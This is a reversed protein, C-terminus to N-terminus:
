NPRQDGELSTSDKNKHSESEVGPNSFKKFEELLHGTIYLRLKLQLIFQVPTLYVTVFNCLTWILCIPGSTPTEKLHSVGIGVECRHGGSDHGATNVCQVTLLQQM